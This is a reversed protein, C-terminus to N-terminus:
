AFQTFVRGSYIGAPTDARYFGARYMKETAVM